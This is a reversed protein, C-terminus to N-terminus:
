GVFQSSTLKSRQQKKIIAHNFRPRHLYFSYFIFIWLVKAIKRGYDKLHWDALLGAPLGGLPGVPLGLIV